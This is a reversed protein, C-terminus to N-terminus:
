LKFERFRIDGLAKKCKRVLKRFSDPQKKIGLKDKVIKIKNKNLFRRATAQKM